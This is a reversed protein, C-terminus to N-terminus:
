SYSDDRKWIFVEGAQGGAALKHGEPHWALCCFGSSAGTLFQSVQQAEDWLLVQGDDAASALNFTGSQFAIDQVIGLHFELVWGDWGASEDVQKELIGVVEASAVALLPVGLETHIDSWALRRIKGPFGGMFGPKLDSLKAIAINDELNAVAIRQGDASWAIAGSASPIELRRPVEDWRLANWIKVGKFGSAALHKGQPHWAMGFISSNEFNLQAIASRSEADWIQVKKGLSFAVQNCSPHWALQDIWRRPNELEAVLKLSNMSWIRLVGDQGGAALFQQDYSFKLCDTSSDGASQLLFSQEETDQWLLVEGAASCAALLNGDKSWDIATVYDSLNEQWHVNFSRRHSASQM